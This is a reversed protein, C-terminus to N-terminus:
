RSIPIWEMRAPPMAILNKFRDCICGYKDAEPGGDIM